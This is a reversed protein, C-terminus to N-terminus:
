QGGGCTLPGIKPAESDKTAPGLALPLSCNGGKWQVDIRNDDQLDLLYVEGRKAVIFQQDGPTVTVRAGPPVPAGGAQQLVVLADRSRKVPFNVFVGSRAYPVATERVGRIEVDFPLQDPNLTLQNLQYPLLGPVLALGNGNTTAVVQNSLSVPVGELDGVHVVAFAGHDIRRSAFALGQLWGVSGNAGVRLANTDKGANAEATLQAYNTNFTAGAQVRQTESDSLAVQWGFGPGAPVSQAVRVTSNLKGTTDRSSNAGMIRREDLPISVNVGGSWGNGEDLQKSVYASLHANWPLPIGLNVGALSFRDGEWTTQSTYTMGASIGLGLQLGGGATIQDRPRSERGTAGLPRYGRDFHGLSVSVGGQPTTRQASALYHGGREGDAVAYGAALGVIGIKGVLAAVGVGAAVRKKGVEGRVEGTLADTLGLRYTGAGFLSGYDNSRTGYNERLAGAEYSSDSLGKALLQPALYYSQNIVTERGLMDRVIVQMNGAGTVIPVNTLEFPGSQVNSTANRRNNILVDVTSPLAASGSISPMPYTIYGPALAFDRAYRVGGFRVPRSWAGGSGITDGVVLSEMTGPFDKRWYTDTRVISHQREDGRLATGTVLSGWSNFAIAEVFAGYSTASDKGGTASLDYNVYVGLPSETPPATLRGGLSQRTADYATAPATVALTMKSRDLQYTMGPAAELAYGPQGDHMTVPQGPLQLRAERWATAPLVVRGDLTREGNIIGTLALDNVKIDLLLLEPGSQKGSKVNKIPAPAPNVKALLTPPEPPERQPAKASMVTPSFAPPPDIPRAPTPTRPAAATTVAPVLAQQAPAPPADPLREPQRRTAAPRPQVLQALPAITKPEPAPREVPAPSSIQVSATALRNQEPRALDSVTYAIPYEGDPTGAPVRLTVSRISTKGQGLRFRRASDVVRWEPAADIVETFEGDSGQNTVKFRFTALKLPESKLGPANAAQIRLGDSQAHAQQAGALLALVLLATLSRRAPPNGHQERRPNKM